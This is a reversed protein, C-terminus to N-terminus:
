DDPTYHVDPVTRPGDKGDSTTQSRHPTQTKPTRHKAEPVGHGAQVGGLRAGRLIFPRMESPPEDSGPAPWLDRPFRRFSPMFPDSM